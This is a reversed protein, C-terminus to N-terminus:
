TCCHSLLCCFRNHQPEDRSTGLLCFGMDGLSVPIKGSCAACGTLNHGIVHEKLSCTPMLDVLIIVTDPLMKWWSPNVMGTQRQLGGGVSRLAKQVPTIQASVSLHGMGGVQGVGAGMKGVGGEMTATVAKDSPASFTSFTCTFENIAQHTSDWCSCCTYVTNQKSHLVRVLSSNRM